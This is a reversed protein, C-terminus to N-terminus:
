ASQFSVLVLLSAKMFLLGVIGTTPLPVTVIVCFPALLPVNEIFWDPSVIILNVSESGVYEGAVVNFSPRIDAASLFFSLPM